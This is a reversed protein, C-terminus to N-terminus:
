QAGPGLKPRGTETPALSAPADGAQLSVQGPLAPQRPRLRPHRGVQVAQGATAVALLKLASAYILWPATPVVQRALLTGQALLRRIGPASVGWQAAAQERTLGDHEKPVNPRRSPDRVCAGRHTRWTNGTGTRYGWRQLTAAMTQARCVQSLARLVELAQQATARGHKGAPHRAVRVATHGGGHGHLQLLHAPPEPRTDMLLAHRVTRLMRKKLTESATPHHWVATLAQGWTLRRHRPEDSLTRRRSALAALQAAVAAGHGRADNWRREWAGAVLRPAPAVRDDQRSARRVAYHATEL